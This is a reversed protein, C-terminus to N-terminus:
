YNKGHIIHGCSPKWNKRLWCKVIQRQIKRTLGTIRQRNTDCQCSACWRFAWVNTPVGLRYITRFRMLSHQGLRSNHSNPYKFVGNYGIETEIWSSLCNNQAFRKYNPATIRMSNDSQASSCAWETEFKEQRHYTRVVHKRKETFWLKSNTMTNEPNPREQKDM